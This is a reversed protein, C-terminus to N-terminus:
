LEVQTGLEVVRNAPIKFYATAPEANRFMWSFLIQRWRPMRAVKARPVITERGLFYSTEMVEYRLGCTNAGFSVDRAGTFGSGTITVFDGANGKSPDVATIVVAM